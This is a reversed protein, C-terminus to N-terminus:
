PGAGRKGEPAYRTRDVADRAQGATEVRPVVVGAAGLDLVRPIYWGVEPVRVLTPKPAIDAARLMGELGEISLPSHEADILL